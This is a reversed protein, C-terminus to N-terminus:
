SEGARSASALLKKGLQIEELSLGSRIALVEDKSLKEFGSIIEQQLISLNRKLDWSIEDVAFLKQKLESVVEEILEIQEKLRNEKDKLEVLKEM